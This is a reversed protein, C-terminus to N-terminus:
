LLPMQDVHPEEVTLGTVEAWVERTEVKEYTFFREVGADVATALHISDIPTLRRNLRRAERSIDRATQM